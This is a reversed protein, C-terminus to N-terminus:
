RSQKTHWVHILRSLPSSSPDEDSALVAKPAGSPWLTNRQLGPPKESHTPPLRDMFDKGWFRERGDNSIKGFKTTTRWTTHCHMFSIHFQPRPCECLFIRFSCFLENVIRTAPLRIDTHPAALRFYIQATVGPRNLPLRAVCRGIIGWHRVRVNPRASNWAALVTFEKNMNDIARTGTGILGVVSGKGNRNGTNVRECQQNLALLTM